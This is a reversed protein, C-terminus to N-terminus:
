LISFGRIKSDITHTNYECNYNYSQSSNKYKIIPNENIYGIDNLKLIKKYIDFYLFEINDKENANHTVSELRIKLLSQDISNINNIAEEFEVELEYRDTVKSLILYSLVIMGIPNIKRILESIPTDEQIKEINPNIYNKLGLLNIFQNDIDLVYIKAINKIDINNLNSM